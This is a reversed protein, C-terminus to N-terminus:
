HKHEVYRRGFTLCVGWIGTLSYSAAIPLLPASTSGRVRASLLSSVCVRTALPGFPSLVLLGLQLLSRPRQYGQCQDLYSLQLQLRCVVGYCGLSAVKQCSKGPQGMTSRIQMVVGVWPGASMAYVQVNQSHLLLHHQPPSLLFVSLSLSGLEGHQSKQGLSIGQALRWSESLHQLSLSM